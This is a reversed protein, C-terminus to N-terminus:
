RSDLYILLAILVVAGAVLILEDRQQQRAIGAVREALSVVDGAPEVPDLEIYEVGQLVGLSKETLGPDLLPVVLKGAARAIGVEQQVYASDYGQLTLLVVVLDSRRIAGVVKDTLPRGAQNDHEACYVEVGLASLHRRISETIADDATAHSLFVLM